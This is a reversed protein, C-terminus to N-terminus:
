MGDAALAAMNLEFVLPGLTHTAVEIWEWPVGDTYMAELLPTADNVIQESLTQLRVPDGDDQQLVAYAHDYANAIILHAQEINHSWRNDPLPPFSQAIARSMAYGLTAWHLL